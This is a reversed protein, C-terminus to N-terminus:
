ENNKQDIYKRCLHFTFLKLLTRHAHALSLGLSFITYESQECACGVTYKSSANYLVFEIFYGEM